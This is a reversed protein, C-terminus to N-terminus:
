GRGAAAASSLGAQIRIFYVRPPTVAQDTFSGIVHGDDTLERCGGIAYPNFTQQSVAYDYWTTGNDDSALCAIRGQWNGVCYLTSGPVSSRAAFFGDLGLLSMRQGKVEPYLDLERKATTVDYRVYHERPPQSQAEYLFHLKGDKALFSSLWTHVDYEDDLTIRDAPGHQDA